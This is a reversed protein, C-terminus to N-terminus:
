HSVVVGAREMKLQWLQALPEAVEDPNGSGVALAIHTSDFDGLAADYSVWRGNDWVQVWAHPSFVYKRGTFRDSYAMGAVVRTPIGQARALAALLVAFETCDGRGTHLAQVADAYGVFNIEGQMRSRVLTVLRRMRTDVSESASGARRALRRIERNDSQVWANPRLYDELRAADAAELVGCNRCVTVIAKGNAIVVTQDGTTALVPAKGDARSLLYRLKQQSEGQSIRYPSAVVTRGIFDVPHEVPRNCDSECRKLEFPLGALQTDISLLKGRRDFRWREGPRNEGETNIQLCFEGDDAPDADGCESAHAPVTRLLRVDFFPFAGTASVKSARPHALLQFPYVTDPPLPSGVRKVGDGSEIQVQRSVIRGADRHDVTGADMHRSFVLAGSARDNSLQVESVVDARATGQVVEINLKEAYRENGADARWQWHASGVHEGDFYVLFDQNHTASDQSAALAPQTATLAALILLVPRHSARRKPITM